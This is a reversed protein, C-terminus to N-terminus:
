YKPSAGQMNQLCNQKQQANAIKDCYSSDGFRSAMNWYCSDKSNINRTKECLTPDGLMNAANIYCNDKYNVDSIKECVSADKMDRSYQEYCSDKQSGAEACLNPNASVEAVFAYCTKRQDSSVRRCLSINQHKGAIGVMCIDEFSYAQYATEISPMESCVRLETEITIEQTGSTQTVIAPLTTPVTTPTTPCMSKDTVVRGDSCVYKVGQESTTQICGSLFIVGMCLVLTLCSNSMKSRTFIILPYKFLM